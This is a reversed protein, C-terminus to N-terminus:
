GLLDSGCHEIADFPPEEGHEFIPLALCARIKQAHSRHRRAFRRPAKSVSQAAHGGSGTPAFPAGGFDVGLRRRRADFL